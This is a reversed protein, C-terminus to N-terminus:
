RLRLPGPLYIDDPGWSRIGTPTVGFVRYFGASFGELALEGGPAVWGVLVGDVYILAALPSHNSVRLAASGASDRLGALKARPLLQRGDRAAAWMTAQASYGAREAAFRALPLVAWGLDLVDSQDQVAPGGTTENLLTRTWRLPRPTAFTLSEILQLGLAGHLSPLALHYLPHLAHHLGPEDEATARLDLRMSWASTRLGPPRYDFTIKALHTATRVRRRPPEAAAQPAPELPRAPQLAATFGSRQSERSLDLVDPFRERPLSASRKRQVDVVVLRDLDDCLLLELPGGPDDEALVVLAREALAYLDVSRRSAQQLAALKAAAPPALQAFPAIEPMALQTVIRYHRAHITGERQFDPDAAGARAACLLTAACALAARTRARCRTM